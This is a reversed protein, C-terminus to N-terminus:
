KRSCHAAVQKLVDDLSNFVHENTFRLVRFGRSELFEQRIVDEEESYEHVPGDIEIILKAEACYFDVIFREISHQRRFKLGTLQRNRLHQWLKDEAETPTHRM